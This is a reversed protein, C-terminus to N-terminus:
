QAVPMRGTKSFETIKFDYPRTETLNETHKSKFTRIEDVQQQKTLREQRMLLENEKQEQEVRENYAQFIDFVSCFTRFNIKQFFGIKVMQHDLTTKFEKKYGQAILKREQLKIKAVKYQDILKKNQRQKIEREAGDEINKWAQEEVKEQDANLYQKKLKIERALRMVEEDEEKMRQKKAMIKSHVELTQQKSREEERKQRKELKKAKEKRIKDNKHERGRRAEM